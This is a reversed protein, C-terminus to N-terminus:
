LRRAYFWRIGGGHIRVLNVGHKALMRACKRLEAPDKLEGPPGNVAGTALQQSRDLDSGHLQGHASVGSDM